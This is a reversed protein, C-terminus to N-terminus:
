LALARVSILIVQLFRQGTEELSKFQVTIGGDCCGEFGLIELKHYGSALKIKGRLIQNESDWSNAWWLDDGWQEELPVGNVYLGGGYGFDAGYRFEWTEKKENEVKFYSESYAAFDRQSNGFQSRNTIGDFNTIFGCGYDSSRDNSNNFATRADTLNTPQAMSFRTHFKIGPYNFTFPVNALPPANRNGYYFYITRIQGRDLTPFRVWITAEKRSSDWDDIWFELLTQDNSDFIYLDEGNNSWDYDSHLTSANIDFKVQYSQLQSGSVSNEQVNIETRFPWECSQRASAPLSIILAIFLFFGSRLM